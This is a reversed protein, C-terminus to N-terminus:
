AIPLLRRSWHGRWACATQCAGSLRGSGTTSQHLFRVLSANGLQNGHAVAAHQLRREGEIAPRREVHGRVQGARRRGPQAHLRAAVTMQQLKPANAVGSRRTIKSMLSRSSVRGAGQSHSTFRRAALKTSAQRSLPKLSSSAGRHRASKRATTDRVCPPICRCAPAPRTTHAADVDFFQDARDLVLLGCADASVGPSPGRACRAPVHNEPVRPGTTPGQGVM